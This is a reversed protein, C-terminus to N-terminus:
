SHGPAVGTRDGAIEGEHESGPHDGAVADDLVVPDEDDPRHRDARVQQRDGRDATRPMAAARRAGAASQRLVLAPILRCDTQEAARYTAPQGRGRSRDATRD